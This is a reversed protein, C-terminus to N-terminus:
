KCIDRTIKVKNTEDFTLETGNEAYRRCVEAHKSSSDSFAVTAIYSSKFFFEKFLVMLQCTYQRTNCVHPAFHNRLVPNYIKLAFSYTYYRAQLWSESLQLALYAIPSKLAIVVSSLGVSWGEKSSRALAVGFCM